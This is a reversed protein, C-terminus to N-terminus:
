NITKELQLYNYFLIHASGSILLVMPNSTEHMLRGMSLIVHLPGISKNNNPVYRSLAQYKYAYIPM